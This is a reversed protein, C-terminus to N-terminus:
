AAGGTAAAPVTVPPNAVVDEMDNLFANISEQTVGPMTIIHSWPGMTALVWKDLIAPPPTRLQVTFAWPNRRVEWGMVDLQQHLYAALERAAVARKHLGERGHHRLAWWLMLVTHGSRSGLLTSDRSGTYGVTQAVKAVLSNRTLVVGCPTPCGIFKHGSVTISDAGDAFDFGPRGAPDLLGLPIAALAGDVHIHRRTIAQGDLVGVIRRVDDIGEGLTTGATALIIAPRHRRLALQNALDTYNMAGDVTSAVTVHPLGLLRLAKGVSYHAQDSVYVVGDPHAERALWLGYLNGESGGTTVYGWYDDGARFLNALFTVVEREMGKTHMPAVGDEWPDGINNLFSRLAPNIPTYDFDTAAPFGIYFPQARALGDLLAALEDASAGHDVDIHM